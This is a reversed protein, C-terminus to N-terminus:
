KDREERGISRSQGRSSEAGVSGRLWALMALALDVSGQVATGGRIERGEVPFGVTWKHGM